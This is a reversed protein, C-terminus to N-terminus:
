RPSAVGFSKSTRFIAQKENSFRKLREFITEKLHLCVANFSVIGYLQGYSSQKYDNNMAIQIRCFLM